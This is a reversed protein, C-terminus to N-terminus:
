KIISNSKRLSKLVEDYTRFGITVDKDLDMPIPGKLPFPLIFFKEKETIIDPATRHKERMISLFSSGQKTFKHQQTSLDFEQHLQRSDAYMGREAIIKPLEHPEIGEELLNNAGTNTQSPSIILCDRAKFFTMLRKVLDRKDTGHPGKTCGVVSMKTLYDIGCVKVIYGKSELNFVRQMVSRYTLESPNTNHFIMHWGNKLLRSSLYKEIEDNTYDKLEPVTGTETIKLLKFINIFTKSLADETKFVLITSKKGEVPNIPKNYYAIATIIADFIGTKNNHSLASINYYEGPRLGGQFTKNMLKWGTKYVNDGKLEEKMEEVVDHLGNENLMLTETIGDVEGNNSNVLEELEGITEEIFTKSSTVGEKGSKISMSAVNFLKVAKKSIYYENIFNLLKNISEILKAEDKYEENIGKEFITYADDDVMGRVMLLLTSKEQKEDLISLIFTLLNDRVIVDDNDYGRKANKILENIELILDKSNIDNDSLSEKYVLMIISLLVIIDKNM